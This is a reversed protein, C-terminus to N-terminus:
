ISGPRFPKMKKRIFGKTPYIRQYLSVGTQLYNFTSPLSIGRVAKKRNTLRFLFIIVPAQQWFPLKRCM